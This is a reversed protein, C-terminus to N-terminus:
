FLAAVSGAPHWARTTEGDSGSGLRKKPNTQAHTAYDGRSTSRILLLGTPILPVLEATTGSDYLIIARAALVYALRSCCSTAKGPLFGGSTIISAGDTGDPVIKSVSTQMIPAPAAPIASARSNMLEGKRTTTRSLPPM